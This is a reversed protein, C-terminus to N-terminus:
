KASLAYCKVTYGNESAWDLRTNCDSASIKLLGKYQRWNRSKGNQLYLVRVLNESKGM